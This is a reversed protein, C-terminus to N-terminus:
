KLFTRNMGTLSGDGVIVREPQRDFGLLAPDDWLFRPMPKAVPIKGNAFMLGVQQHTPNLAKCHVGSLWTNECACGFQRLGKTPLGQIREQLMVNLLEIANQLVLQFRLHLYSGKDGQPM